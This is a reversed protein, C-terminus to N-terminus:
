LKIKYGEPSTGPKFFKLRNEYSESLKLLESPIKGDYYTYITYGETLLDICLKVESSENFVM